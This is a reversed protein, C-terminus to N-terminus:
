GAARGSRASARVLRAAHHLDADLVFPRANGLPVELLDEIPEIGLPRCPSFNPWCEPSPSDILRCITSASRPCIEASFRRPIPLLTSPARNTTVNGRTYSAAPHTDSRQLRGVYTPM